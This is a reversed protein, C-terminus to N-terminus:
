GRSGSPIEVGHNFEVGISNEPLDLLRGAGVSKAAWEVLSRIPLITRTEWRELLLHSRHFSRDPLGPFSTLLQVPGVLIPNATSLPPGFYSLGVATGTSAPAPFLDCGSGSGRDM